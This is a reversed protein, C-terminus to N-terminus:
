KSMGPLNTLHQVQADEKSSVADCRSLIAEARDRPLKLFDQFSIGTFRLVNAALYRELYVDYPDVAALDEAEHMAVLAFPSQGQSSSEYVGFYEDYCETIVLHAAVSDLTKDTTALVRDLETM